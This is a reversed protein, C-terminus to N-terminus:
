QSSASAVVRARAFVPKGGNDPTITLTASASHSTDQPQVDIKFENPGVSTIKTSFEPTSSTVNINKVKAEKATKVNITKAKPAENNEWYVFSPQLELAQAIVARLTLVTVPTEADDTEVTVTKQATGTTSGIKFTATIEGKEGPAIQDKVKNTTTCGCSTHVSKVHVVKDGTNQYKFSGVANADGPGPHLEVMTQDWKLGARAHPGLLFFGAIAFLTFGKAKM